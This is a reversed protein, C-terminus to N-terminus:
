GFGSIFIFFDKLRYIAESCWRKIPSINLGQIICGIKQLLSNTADASPHSKILVKNLLVEFPFSISKLVKLILNTIVITMAKGAKGLSATGKVMLKSPLTMLSGLARRPLVMMKSIANFFISGANIAVTSAAANIERGERASMRANGFASVSFFLLGIGFMSLFTSLSPSVAYTVTNRLAEGSTRQVVDDGVVDTAFEMSHDLIEPDNLAKHASETLLYRTANLVENDEGLKVVMQTLEKNIDDDKLLGMVLEKFSRKIKENQLATNLLQVVQATTEPDHILDEWLTKLVKHCSTQFQESGIVRAVLSAIANQLAESNL